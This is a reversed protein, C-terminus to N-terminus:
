GLMQQMKPDQYDLYNGSTNAAQRSWRKEKLFKTALHHTTKAEMKKPPKIWQKILETDNVEGDVWQQLLTTNKEAIEETKKDIATNWRSM